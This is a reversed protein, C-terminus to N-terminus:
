FDYGHPYLHGRNNHREIYLVGVVEKGQYPTLSFAMRFNLTKYEPWDEVQPTYMVLVSGNNTLQRPWGPDQAFLRCRIGSGIHNFPNAKEYFRKKLIKFINM